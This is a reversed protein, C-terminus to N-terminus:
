IGTGSSSKNMGCHYTGVYRIKVGLLSLLDTKTDIAKYEIGRKDLEERLEKQTWEKSPIPRYYRQYINFNYIIIYLQQYNLLKIYWYSVM